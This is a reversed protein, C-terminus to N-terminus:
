NGITIVPLDLPDTNRHGNSAEIVPLSRLWDIVSCVRYKKSGQRTSKIKGSNIGANIRQRSLGTTQIIEDISVSKVDRNIWTSQVKPYLAQVDADLSSAREALLEIQTSQDNLLLALRTTEEIHTQALQTTEALHATQMADIEKSHALKLADIEATSMAKQTQVDVELQAIQDKLKSTADANDPLQILFYLMSLIGYAYGAWTRAQILITPLVYGIPMGLIFITLGLFVLTPLGFLVAWVLASKRKHMCYFKIHGYVTTIALGLIVEPLATFAAISLRSITITTSESVYQLVLPHVSANITTWLSALLFVMESVTGASMVLWYVFRKCWQWSLFSKAFAMSHDIATNM